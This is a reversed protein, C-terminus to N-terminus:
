HKKLHYCSKFSFDPFLLILPKSKHTGPGKNPTGYKLVKDYAKKTNLHLSPPGAQELVYSVITHQDRGGNYDYPTGKRFIKLTPYGTVGFRTGLEEEATADVKAM